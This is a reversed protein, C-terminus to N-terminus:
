ARPRRNRWDARAIAYFLQRGPRAGITRDKDARMGVRRMVARSRPNRADTLGIVEPLELTEFAHALWGLAAETAYGEGWHPPSLAWGIEFCPTEEDGGRAIGAMGLFAGDRRREIAGYCFGDRAWLAMFQEMLERSESPSMVGPGEGVVRPDAHLAAFGDRDSERWARLILRPTTLM